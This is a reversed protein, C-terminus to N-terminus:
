FDSTYFEHGGYNFLFKLNNEFWSIKSGDAYKRAVFYLAGGSIDEGALARNVANKTEDSVTVQYYKGNAVPSFQSTNSDSQFVVARVTDPFSNDAVRNLVVNAVLLKGNEDEGGAEAEVIRCLVDIDDDSLSYLLEKEITDCSVVRQGSVAIDAIGFASVAKDSLLSEDLEMEDTKSYLMESNINFGRVCMFSMVFLLDTLAIATVAKKYM